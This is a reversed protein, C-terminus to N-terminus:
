EKKRRQRSAKKRVLEQKEPEADLQETKEKFAEKENDKTIEPDIVQQRELVTQGMADHAGRIDGDVPVARGVRMLYAAQEKPFGAIEGANYHKFRSTFRVAVKESTM